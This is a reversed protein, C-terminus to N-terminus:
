SFGLKKRLARLKEAESSEHEDQRAKRQEEEMLYKRYKSNANEVDERLDRMHYNELEDPVCHIVIHGSEIWARRWMSHRPFKREAVFIASWDSPPVRSLRLYMYFLAMAADPKRTRELDLDAIQIDEFETLSSDTNTPPVQHPQPDPDPPRMEPPRSNAAGLATLLRALADNFKDPSTFDAYLKDSLFAPVEVREILIPLVVVRKEAFERQMAVQLERKVWESAVSNASLVVGVFDNSKLAGGIKETLSDGVRLEAEDVWVTVGQAALREALERVFFKDNSNHSLFISPM